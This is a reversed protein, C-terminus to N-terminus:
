ISVVPAYTQFGDLQDEQGGTEAADHDGSLTIRCRPSRVHEVVDSLGHEVALVVPLLDIGGVPGGGPTIISIPEPRWRIRPRGM